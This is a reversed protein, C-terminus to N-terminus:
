YAGSRRRFLRFCAQDCRIQGILDALLSPPLGEGDPLDDRDDSVIGALARLDRGRAMAPTDDCGGDVTM